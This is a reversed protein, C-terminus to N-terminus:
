WKIREQMKQNQELAIYAGYKGVILDIPFQAQNNITNCILERDIEFDAEASTWSAANVALGVSDWMWKVYEPSGIWFNSLARYEIGYSKPRFAGSKGYLKRRDKDTDAYLSPAGLFVDMAKVLLLRSEPTPANGDCSYSVHIHGGATRLTELSPDSRDVDNESLNWADFDPECGFTQAQKTNLDAPDFRMSAACVLELGKPRFYETLYEMMKSTNSIFEGRSSAPPLNFEVMVNDEQVAFGEGLEPLLRPKRKTGGLLGCVPVPKRTEFDRLFLETDTGIKLQLMKM